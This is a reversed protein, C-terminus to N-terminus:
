KNRDKGARRRANVCERCRRRNGEKTTNKEDYPHGQPCHTRLKQYGGKGTSPTLGHRERYLATRAGGDAGHKKMCTRCQRGGSSSVYTNKEDYPHGQPCHTKKANKAAFGTGRLTNDRSTVPELHDPNVCPHVRCSHDLLMNPPIPGVLLEYAYRHAKAQRGGLENGLSFVGYGGVDLGGRWLWCGGPGNKIVYGYFREEPTGELRTHRGRYLRCWEDYHTTCMGWKDTETSCGDRWCTRQNV